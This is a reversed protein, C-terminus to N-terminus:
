QQTSWLKRTYKKGGIGKQTFVTPTPPSYAPHKKREPANKYFPVSAVAIGLVSISVVAVIMNANM